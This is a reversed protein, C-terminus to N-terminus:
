TGSRRAAFIMRWDTRCVLWVVHKTWADYYDKIPTADRHFVCPIIRDTAKELQRTRELQCTLICTLEPTMPFMHGESNKTEGPELGLWGGELYVHQWRRTLVESPMRWGTIYAVQFVPNLHSPLHKLVAQFQEPEFFGKRTNDERLLSFDPVQAVKGARAALRLARKLAALDRNITAAEAKEARRFAM